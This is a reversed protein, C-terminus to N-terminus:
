LCSELFQNELPLAITVTTGRGQESEIKLDGKHADIIKNVIVLGLGSGGEKTSYFPELANKESRQSMGGGTDKFIIEISGGEATDPDEKRNIKHNKKM